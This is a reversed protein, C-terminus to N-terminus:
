AAGLTAVSRREPADGLRTGVRAKRVVAVLADVILLQHPAGEPENCSEGTALLLNQREAGPALEAVLVCRDGEPNRDSGHARAEGACTGAQPFEIGTDSM